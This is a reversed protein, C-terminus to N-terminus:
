RDVDRFPHVVHNVFPVPPRPEQRAALGCIIQTSMVISVSGARCSGRGGLLPRAPADHVRGSSLLELITEVPYGLGRITPKGHCIAPDITIRTLTNM